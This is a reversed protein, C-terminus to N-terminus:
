NMSKLIKGYYLEENFCIQYFYLGPNLDDTNISIMDNFHEYIVKKKLTGDIRYIYISIDNESHIKSQIILENRFPMPYICFHKNSFVMKEFTNANVTILIRTFVTDVNAEIRISGADSAIFTVATDQDNILLGQGESIVWNVDFITDTIPSSNQDYFSALLHLSDGVNIKQRNPGAAILALYPKYVLQELTMSDNNMAGKACLTYITTEDPFVTISSNVDVKEGNIFVSDANVTTWTIIASDNISIEKKNTKLSTVFTLGTEVQHIIDTSLITDRIIGAMVGAGKANPHIYDPFLYISDKLAHYFDILMANNRKVISDVLPMVGDVIVSDRIGWVVEFAPPPYCVIFKVLPNRQKFTDIMSQYDDLFEGGHSDWNQPKSDNTGLLIFCINPAFDLARQFQVENWLPYDGHKLMTRGSVAFNGIICTDGYIESLLSGLQSPYCQLSPNALGTGITISNGMFAIRVHHDQGNIGKSTIIIVALVFFYRMIKM